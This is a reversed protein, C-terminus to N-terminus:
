YSYFVNLEVDTSDKRIAKFDKIESVDRLTLTEGDKLPMGVTATPDTGDVRYRMDADMARCFVARCPRNIFDGSTPLIKAATFGIAVSSVTVQEFDRASRDVVTVESM